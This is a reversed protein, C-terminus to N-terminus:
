LLLQVLLLPLMMPVAVAATTAATDGRGSPADIAAALLMTATDQLLGSGADAGPGAISATAAASILAASGVVVIPIGAVIQSVDALRRVLSAPGCEPLRQRPQHAGQASQGGSRRLHGGSPTIRESPVTSPWLGSAIAPTPLRAPIHRPVRQAHMYVGRETKHIDTCYRAGLPNRSTDFVPTVYRDSFNYPGLIFCM